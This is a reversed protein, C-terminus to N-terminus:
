VPLLAAAIRRGESLLINYTRAAAPSSMAELAIGEIEFRLKLAPDLYTATAGTGFLLVDVQGKLVLLPAIDDLGGWLGAGDPAAIVAGRFVTGGVRFFGPGYGDIPRGPGSYPIDTLGIM